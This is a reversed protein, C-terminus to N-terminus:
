APVSGKLISLEGLLSVQVLLALLQGFCKTVCDALNADRGALDIRAIEITLESM